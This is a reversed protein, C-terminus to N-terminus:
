NVVALTAADNRKLKTMATPVPLLAARSRTRHAVACWFFVADRFLQRYCAWLRQARIGISDLIPGASM